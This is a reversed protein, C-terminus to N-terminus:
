IQLAQRVEAILRDNQGKVNKLLMKRLLVVVIIGPIAAILGGLGGAIKKGPLFALPEMDNYALYAGVLLFPVLVGYTIASGLKSSEDVDIKVVDPSSKEWKFDVSAGIKNGQRITIEHTWDKEPATFTGSSVTYAAGFQRQLKATFDNVTKVLATENNGTNELKYILPQGSEM